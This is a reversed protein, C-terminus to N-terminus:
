LSFGRIGRWVSPIILHGERTMLKAGSANRAAATAFASLVLEKRERRGMPAESRSM